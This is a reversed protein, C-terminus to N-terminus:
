DMNEDRKAKQATAKINGGICTKIHKKIKFKARHDKSTFMEPDEQADSDTDEM